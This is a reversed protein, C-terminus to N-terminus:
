QLIVGRITWNISGTFNADPDVVMEYNTGDSIKNAITFATTGAALGTTITVWRDTDSGDGIIIDEITTGAIVGIIDTIYCGTPLIARSADTAWAISQAEHTGAWTNTGRIEFTNKYRVLSSGTAPQWAHLKNTSSDLWQGPAPQIGEPELALTAGISTVVVNKIYILDDLVSNAGVFTTASAATAEHWRLGGGNISMYGDYVVSTWADTTSLIIDTSVGALTRLNSGSADLVIIKKANTNASPIYYDFSIKLAKYAIITTLTRAILHVGNTADAWYRLTDNVGGIGDINGTATGNTGTCSDAGASFDSTWLATQSGWKDAFDISGSRYLQLVEAATLARNYTAAFSCVGVSRVSSTGMVYLAVANNITTPAGATIAVPSGFALGDVYFVVSGAVSATERTVVLVVSHNTGDTLANVDSYYANGDNNTYLNCYFRGTTSLYTYYGYYAGASGGVKKFIETNASPTWDPLSGMWVLTFNGTGFDINANDAVTIGTSGSAAATMNVGQSPAKPNAIVALAAADGAATMARTTDVGAIAEAVTDLEVVGPNTASATECAITLTGAGLTTDIGEGDTITAFVPDAGTSGVLVQGNTGAALPTIADTGSGVLVGHDTLTSAGTGGDAVTIDTIGTITGGTIDVNSCEIENAGATLKGGTNLTTCTIAAASNAGIITGDIAGGDIDVKTIDVEGAGKPTIAININADTGDAALTTGTLTVAAAAVNTDFTTGNVTTSTLTTITVAAITGGEVKDGSIQNDALTLTGASVNLTKGAGVTIDSTAITCGDITGGNIDPNNDFVIGHAGTAEAIHDFKATGVRTIDNDFVIGHSGTHEGIHDALATTTHTTTFNGQNFTPSADTTLDQNVTSDLEVTLTKSAASFTLTGSYGDGVTLSENLTITNAQTVGTITTAQGDVTLSKDINLTAGAAVDLIATGNTINFTNSGGTIVGAGGDKIHWSDVDIGHASTVEVLQDTHIHAFQPGADTTLDQNVASAAEVALAISNATLSFGAAEAAITTSAPLAFTALDADLGLTAIVNAAAADDIISAGFTSITTSAPLSFTALDADLGLTAIVAAANADDVISAGFTSITTNAPLSFTPLDADLGLTSLVTAALIGALEGESEDYIIFTDAM